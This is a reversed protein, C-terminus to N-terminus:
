APAFRCNLKYFTKWDVGGGAGKEEELHSEFTAPDVGEMANVCFKHWLFPDNCFRNWTTSVLSVDKLISEVPVFTLIFVCLEKPLREEM